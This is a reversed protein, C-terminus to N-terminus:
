ILNKLCYKIAAECAQEYSNFSQNIDHNPANNYHLRYKYGHIHYKPKIKWYSQIDIDINHVKRLWKMAMQLTPAFCVFKYNEDFKNHNDFQISIYKETEYQSTYEAYWVRCCCDFGKEKLLKATDFSVYDETIM